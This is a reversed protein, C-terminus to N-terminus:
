EEPRCAGPPNRKKEYESNPPVEVLTKWENVVRLVPAHDERQPHIRNTSKLQRYRNVKLGQQKDGTVEDVNRERCPQRGEDPQNM